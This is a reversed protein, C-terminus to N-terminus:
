LRLELDIEDTIPTGGVGTLPISPKVARADTVGGARVEAVRFGLREYFRIAPENDNTTIVRVRACAAAHAREIAALMLATAIGERERLADVTVVELVGDGLDFTLLGVREGDDDQAVFGDLDAPRFVVGHAVVVEDLWRDIVLSRAWAREDPRLPRVRVGAM